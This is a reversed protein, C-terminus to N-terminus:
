RRPFHLIAFRSNALLSFFCKKILQFDSVEETDLGIPRLATALTFIPKNNHTPQLLATAGHFTSFKTVVVMVIENVDGKEEIGV